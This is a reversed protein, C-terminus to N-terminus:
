MDADDSAAWDAQDGADEEATVAELHSHQLLVGRAFLYGGAKLV